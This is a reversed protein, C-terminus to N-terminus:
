TPKSSRFSNGTVACSCAFISTSSDCCAVVLVFPLSYGSFHHHFTPYMGDLHTLHAILDVPNNNQENIMKQSAEIM